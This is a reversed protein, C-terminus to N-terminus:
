KIKRLIKGSGHRFIQFGGQVMFGFVPLLQYNIVFMISTSLVGHVPLLSWSNERQQLSEVLNATSISEAARALFQLQNVILKKGTTGSEQSFM